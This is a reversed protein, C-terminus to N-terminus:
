SESCTEYHLLNLLTIELFPRHQQNKLHKKWICAELDHSRTLYKGSLIISINSATMTLQCSALILFKSCSSRTPQLFLGHFAKLLLALVTKQTSSFGTALLLSWQYSTPLSNPFPHKNYCVSYNHNSWQEM